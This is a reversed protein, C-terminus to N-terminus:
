AAVRRPRHFLRRVREPVKGVGQRFRVALKGKKLSTFIRRVRKRIRKKETDEETRMDIDETKGNQIESALAAEDKPKDIGNRSISVIKDTESCEARQVMSATETQVEEIKECPRVILRHRAAEASSGPVFIGVILSILVLFKQKIKERKKMNLGGYCRQFNAWLGTGNVTVM